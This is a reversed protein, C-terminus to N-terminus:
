NNGQIDAKNRASFDTVEDGSLHSKTHTKTSKIGLYKFKLGAIIDDAISAAVGARAGYLAQMANVPRDSTLQLVMKLKSRVILSEDRKKPEEIERSSKYDINWKTKTRGEPPEGNIGTQTVIEPIIQAVVIEHIERRFDTERTTLEVAVNKTKIFNSVALDLDLKIEHKNAVTKPWETHTSYNIHM